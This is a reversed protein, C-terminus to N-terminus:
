IAVAVRKLAEVARKLSGTISHSAYLGVVITLLCSMVIVAILITIRSAIRSKAEEVRQDQSRETLNALLEIAAKHQVYLPSLQLDIIADAKSADGQKIAPLFQARLIQFYKTAPDKSGNLIGDRIQTELPTGSPLAKEWYAQRDDYDHELGDLNKVLADVQKPDSRLAKEIQLVTLHTEVIFEPPPLIDSRLDMERAIAAYIPGSVKVENVASLFFVGLFRWAPLRSALPETNVVVECELLRSCAATGSAM